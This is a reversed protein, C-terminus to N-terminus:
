TPAGRRRALHARARGAPLGPRRRFALAAAALTGLAPTHRTRRVRRRVLTWPQGGLDAHVATARRGAERRFVVRVSSMGFRSLDLRFVDPDHGDAPELPLGRFPIPVPTLLRVMLRGGGVFVEAGGSLMLRVRLDAIRPQFVYRGTLDAWIEPHHPICDRAGDDSVGILQRLLHDLEVQLWAFAGASGNTFAMLGVGDGPALLISSNYGPLIGDHGVTRHGDVDGRFFALGVGPIRPHPQYHPEFMGALTAPELIRGHENAGGGLLASVFRAMDRATSYVEGAGADIWVRNPVARPGRRGLRYGTAVRGPRLLDTDVMGLPEAIRERLYRELPLGSVDEVVQGLTAFGHNTYAFATGPEVVMRLGDRYYEALSPMPEGARVSLVAPRGGSPTFDADLLDALGRVEPIGATHTLLHRLTAPRWGAHAPTLKFARLYDNAPADLDIWGQEWLQMVAIATFVKTISGIRFVTDETVPVKSAIDALGHGHFFALHGDRVVGVALGVAPHRNLIEHVRPRFPLEADDLGGRADGRAAGRSVGRRDGAVTIQSASHSGRGRPRASM